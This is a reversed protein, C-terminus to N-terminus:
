VWLWGCEGAFVEESFAHVLEMKAELTLKALLPVSNLFVEVQTSTHLHPLTSFHVLEMAELTLKALLLVL